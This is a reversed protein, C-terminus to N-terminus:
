ATARKKEKPAAKHATENLWGIGKCAKCHKPEGDCYCCPAFPKAFKIETDLNDLDSMIRQYGMQLMEGGPLGKLRNLAQKLKVLNQRAPDFEAATEFVKVMPGDAAKGTGDKGDGTWEAPNFTTGGSPGVKPEHCKKCDGDAGAEHDGGKPCNGTPSTQPQAHGKPKGTAKAKPPNHKEIVAKTAAVTPKVGKDALKEMEKIAAEPVSPASILYAVTPPFSSIIEHKKSREWVYMLNTAHRVELGESQIWAKFKGDRGKGALDEHANWIIEGAKQGAEGFREIAKRLHHAHSQLKAAVEKDLSAYDFGVTALGAM